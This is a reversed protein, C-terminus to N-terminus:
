APGATLTKSHTSVHADVIALLTQITDLENRGIRRNLVEERGAEVDFHWQGASKVLPAPFLWDDDGVNLVAKTDSQQDIRHKADYASIFRRWDTTDAVNDGSFLWDKSKPGVVVLLGNVDKARVAGVLATVAQEPTAFSQQTTPPPAAAFSTVAFMATLWPTLKMM